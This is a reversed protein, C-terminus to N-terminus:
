PRVTARANGAPVPKSVPRLSGPSILPAVAIAFRAVFFAAPPLFLFSRQPIMEVALMPTALTMGPMSFLLSKSTRAM